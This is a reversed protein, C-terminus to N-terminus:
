ESIGEGDFDMPPSMTFASMKWQVSTLMDTKSQPQNDKKCGFVFLATLLLIFFKKM